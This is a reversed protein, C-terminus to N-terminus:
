RASAEAHLLVKGGSYAVLRQYVGTSRHEEIINAIGHGIEARVAALEEVPPTERCINCVGTEDLGLGPVSGPLLCRKCDPSM